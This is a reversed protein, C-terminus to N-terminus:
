ENEFGQIQISQLDANNKQLKNLLCKVLGSSAQDLNQPGSLDKSQIM